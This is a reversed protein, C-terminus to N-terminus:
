NILNYVKRKMTVIDFTQLNSQLNPYQVIPVTCLIYNYYVGHSSTRVPCSREQTSTASYERRLSTGTALGIVSTPPQLLTLHQM